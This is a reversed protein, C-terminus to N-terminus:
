RAPTAHLWRRHRTPSPTRGASTRRRRTASSRARRRETAGHGAAGVSAVALQDSPTDPDTDNALVDIDIPRTRTTTAADDVAVPDTNGVVHHRGHRVRDRRRRGHRLGRDHAPRHGCVHQHGHDHRRHRSPSRSRGSGLRRDRHPHRAVGADAYTATVTSRSARSSSRAWRCRARADARRQAGDGPRHRHRVARRRRVGRAHRSRPTTPPTSARRPPPLAADASRGDSATWVYSTITGDVDTSGTGDLVLDVGTDGRHDLHGTRRAAEPVSRATSCSRPRTYSPTFGPANVAVFQSTVDAGRLITFVDDPSPSYAADREVGATGGLSSRRRDRGRRRVSRNGAVRRHRHRVTGGNTFTGNM